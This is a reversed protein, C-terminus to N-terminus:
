LFRDARATIAKAIAPIDNDYFGSGNICNFEIVKLQGGELLALDMVCTDHPLWNDAFEQAEKEMDKDARQKRLQGKFRYMSGSVVKRDVIFFRAELLINKVTSISIEKGLGFTHYGCSLAEIRGAFEKATVVEGPFTKLDDYPRVFFEREPNVGKFFDLAKEVSMTQADFNLMDDRQRNWMPVNFTKENFFLGTWGLKAATKCLTTSGYPIIVPDNCEMYLEESFPIMPCDLWSTGSAKLAEVLPAANGYVFPLRLNVTQIAWTTM